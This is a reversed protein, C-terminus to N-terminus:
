EEKKDGLQRAIWVQVAKTGDSIIQQGTDSKVIREGVESAAIAYVTSKNPLLASFIICVVGATLWRWGYWRFPDSRNDHEAITQVVSITLMLIGFILLVLALNSAAQALYLLWSLYNM